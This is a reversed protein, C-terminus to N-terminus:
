LFGGVDAFVDVSVLTTSASSTGQLLLAIATGM